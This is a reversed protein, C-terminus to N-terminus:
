SPLRVRWIDRINSAGDNFERVLNVSLNYSECAECFADSGGGVGFYYRKMSVLGVGTDYKLHKCLWYATENSAKNTYTTESALILDFRSDSYSHENMREIPDDNMNPLSGDMLNESLEMWDGAYLGTLNKILEVTEELHGDDECCNLLINPLTVDRLVFTNYDTFIVRPFLGQSSKGMKKERHMNIIEKLLLCGPLGHGCGLEIITGGNSLALKVDNNGIDSNNEYLLSIQETLYHCLDISCEWVKLGGEYTGPIIDTEKGHLTLLVDEDNKSTDDHQNQTRFPREEHSIRELSTVYNNQVFDFKISSWTRIISSLSNQVKKLVTDVPIAFVPHQRKQPSKTEIISNNTTQTAKKNTTTTTTVSRLKSKYTQTPPSKGVQRDEQKIKDNEDSADDDLSSTLDFGFKFSM